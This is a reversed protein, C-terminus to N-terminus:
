FLLINLIAFLLTINSKVKIKNKLIYKNIKRNERNEEEQM